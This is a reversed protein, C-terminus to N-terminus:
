RIQKIYCREGAMKYLKEDAPTGALLAHIFGNWEVLRTHLIKREPNTHLQFQLRGDLGRWHIWPLDELKNMALSQAMDGQMAQSRGWTGGAESVFPKGNLTAISDHYALVCLCSAPQSKLWQALKAAHGKRQSYAYNSDLFAIRKISEPIIQWQDILSFILAGGGSHSTLALDLQRGEFQGCVAKLMALMQLSSNSRKVWTPWSKEACELYAVALNPLGGSTRLWRTQAAIHQNDSRWDTGPGPRRGMAQEITCGNPLAYLALLVPTNKEINLGRPLNVLVRIGGELQIVSELEDAADSPTAEAYRPNELPGEDSLLNWLTPDQLIKALTTPQEDLLAENKVLRIGYSYDVWSSSHGLYLPQVVDNPGRHWGYIAVKGSTTSLKSSVVLDKKHGAVLTGWPFRGLADARQKDLKRQHELMVALSTMESSPPIPTPTLKLPAADYIVDVLRPTPLQCDLADAVKQAAVPSLPALFCDEVSGLCLYDPAVQFAIKHLRGGWEKRITVAVFNRWHDPVNGLLIQEVLKAERDQLPLQVLKSAFQKGGVADLARPPLRLDAAPAALLQAFSM